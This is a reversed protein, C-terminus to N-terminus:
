QILLWIKIFFNAKGLCKVNEGAATVIDLKGKVPIIKIGAKRATTAPLISVSAGSDALFFTQLGASSWSRGAIQCHQLPNDDQAKKAKKKLVKMRIVADRIQHIAIQPFHHSPHLTSPFGLRAVWYAKNTPKMILIRKIGDM